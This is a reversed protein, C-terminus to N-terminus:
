YIDVEFVLLQFSGQNLFKPDADVYKNDGVVLTDEVRIANIFADKSQFAESSPVIRSLFSGNSM